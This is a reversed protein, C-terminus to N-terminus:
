KQWVKCAPFIDSLYTLSTRTFEFVIRQWCDEAEGRSTDGHMCLLPFDRSKKTMYPYDYHGRVSCDCKEQMNCQWSLEQEMFHIIRKSLIREQLAWGRNKLPTNSTDLPKRCQISYSGYGRTPSELMRSMHSTEPTVFCGEYADTSKTASLTMHSGEYIQAM